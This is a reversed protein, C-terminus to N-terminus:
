QSGWFVGAAVRLHLPGEGFAQTDAALYNRGGALWIASVALELGPGEDLAYRLGGGVGAWVPVRERGGVQRGDEARPTVNIFALGGDLMGFLGSDASGSGTSLRLGVEQREYEVDLEGSVERNTPVVTRNKSGFAAGHADLGLWWNAALPEVILGLGITPQLLTVDGNLSMTLLGGTSVLARLKRPTAARPRPPEARPEHEIGPEDSVLPPPSLPPPLIPDPASPIDRRPPEHGALELLEVAAVAVAYPASRAVARELTRTLVMGDWTRLVKVVGSETDIVVVMREPWEAQAQQLLKESERALESTRRTADGEIQTMLHTAAPEDSTTAAVVAVNQALVRPAAMFCAAVIGTRASWRLV